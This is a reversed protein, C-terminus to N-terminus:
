LPGDLYEHVAVVAALGLGFAAASLSPALEIAEVLGLAVVVALGVGILYVALNRVITWHRAARVYGM